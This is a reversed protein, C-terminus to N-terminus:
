KLLGGNVRPFYNEQFGYATLPINLAPTAGMEFDPPLFHKDRIKLCAICM